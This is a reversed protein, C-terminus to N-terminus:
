LDCVAMFTMADCDEFSVKIDVRTDVFGDHADFSVNKERLSLFM